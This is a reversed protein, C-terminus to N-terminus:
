ATKIDGYDTCYSLKKHLIKDLLFTKGKSRKKEHCHFKFRAKFFIARVKQWFNCM